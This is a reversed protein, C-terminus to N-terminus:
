EKGKSTKGKSNLGVTVVSDSGRLSKLQQYQKYGSWSGDFTDEKPVADNNRFMRMKKQGPALYETMDHTRVGKRSYQPPKESMPFKEYSRFANFAALKRAVKEENIKLKLKPLKGVIAHSEVNSEKTEDTVASISEVQEQLKGDELANEGYVTLLLALVLVILLMENM